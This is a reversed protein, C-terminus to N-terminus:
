FLWKFDTTASPTSILTIVSALAMALDEEAFADDASLDLLPSDATPYRMMFETFSMMALLLLPVLLFLSM